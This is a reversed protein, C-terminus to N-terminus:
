NKNLFRIGDVAAVIVESAYGSFIGNEVVGAINNIRAELTPDIVDFRADLLLNGKATFIPIKRDLALGFRIDVEKAGLKKILNIVSYTSEPVVEIPVAMKEGLRKVLKDETVVVVFNGNSKSAVIKEQLLAGGRGKLLRLESDVEDAGDFAWDLDFKYSPNLVNLGLEELAWASQYSTPVFNIKLNDKNIRTKIAALVAEVTTGTGAGITQGDKLREALKEALKNLTEQNAM